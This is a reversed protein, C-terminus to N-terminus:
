EVGARCEDRVQTAYRVSQRRAIEACAYIVEDWDNTVPSEPGKPINKMCAEFTQQRLCQDVDRLKHELKRPEPPTCACITLLALVTIKSKM